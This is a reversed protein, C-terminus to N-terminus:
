LFQLSTFCRVGAPVDQPCCARLAAGKADCKAAVPTNSPGAKEAWMVTVRMAGEAHAEIHLAGGPLLKSATNIAVDLDCLARQAASPTLTCSAQQSAGSASEEYGATYRYAGQRVALPNARMREGLDSVIALMVAYANIDSQWRLAATQQRALALLGFLFVVITILVEVLTTGADHTTRPTM